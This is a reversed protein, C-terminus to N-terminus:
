LGKLINRWQALDFNYKKAVSESLALIDDKMHREFLERVVIIDVAMRYYEDYQSQMAALEQDTAPNVFLKDAEYNTLYDSDITADLLELEDAAIGDQIAQQRLNMFNKLGVAWGLYKFAAKDNAKFANRWEPTLSAAYRMYKGYRDICSNVAQLAADYDAKKGTAVWLRVYAQARQLDIAMELPAVKAPVHKDMKQLMLRAMDARTAPVDQGSKRAFDMAWQSAPSDADRLLQVAIDTMAMRTSSVMRAVTEDIYVDKGQDLGGWRWKEMVNRYAKDLVPSVPEDAFPTVMQAMGTSYMYPTMKLHLRDEVTNAFYVPRKFGGEFSNAIIDFALIDRLGFGSPLHDMSMNATYKGNRANSFYSQPMLGFKNMIAASDVTVYMNPTALLYNVDDFYGPYRSRVNDAAPNNGSYLDALAQRVTIPANAASDVSAPLSFTRGWLKDYAYDNPTTYMPVGAANYSPRRVSNAYWETALYSLNVIKVDTRVGEVEQLYWLPFTDNDGNTFIIANEDLSNLYNMGYDRTTFRGSRDHDDWTQSVMQLPVAIGVAAAIGAVTWKVAPRLPKSDRTVNGKADRKVLNGTCLNWLWRLCHALGPVGLGIWVAFAYFSGAFAYDRERPQGPTQNLYLVIAIGTMFFLFFVVWFQEAGRGPATKHRALAQWLLGILGLLLPLMYYVNHGKNASGFEDPLYEQDGLRLDDIPAIGSIWNGLFPEGNGQLDNQRGAFNWMFYRWYMHNLQYNIFYKFNTWADMKWGDVVKDVVRTETKGTTPDRYQQLDTGLNIEQTNNMYPAVQRDTVYGQRRWEERVTTPIQSLDPNEYVAWTKYSGVHRPEYSYMRPLLMQMDSAEEYDPKDVERVYRDPEDPSSKVIKTYGKNDKGHDILGGEDLMYPRVPQTTPRGTAEDVQYVTVMRGTEPDEVQDLEVLEEAVTYGYVLPNEGYQERNLYSALAFVNDPANQNMPTDAASRILLLAYSSYGIFIVMVSSVVVNFIRVPVKKCFVFLYAALALLLLVPIVWGHGIFPMGSMLISLFVGVKIATASRQRYLETLTWIFLAVTLVAYVLVGTNYPTHFYNVFLLEFRQAVAIFGPVLGYLILVVLAASVCLAILSGVVTPKAWKRYYFVLVIAPICLLNLLHVAISIGIVYAILILYRDSHPRESRAEWKLILWFVLATCFSSFAYVEGEVASFWFTDSWTYALVGCLGGGMILLTKRWSVTNADDKVILRKILYTVTWFLLLITGASLMASMTNVALAASEAAGGFMTVFFRATLMFIPNGPPHGIELKYGQTIFEPCDWFSATPELTLLYTVAAIVFCLWGLTNNIINYRKM